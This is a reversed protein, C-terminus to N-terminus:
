NNKKIKEIFNELEVGYKSAKINDTLSNNVTDLLKINANYLETLAIYPAVEKDANQIAFNTTFYYKRKILNAEKKEINSLEATDNIKSAEFKEKLFDLQKGNFQRYMDNYEELKEQNKSGTIKASTSFKELKSNVTIEGKEGFFTIREDAKKDLTIFYIEPSELEDVLIFSSLGNLQVSDVSVLLTDKYKQLYVTGKKLGDINGNVVMSGTKSKGCSILLTIILLSNFIKKM